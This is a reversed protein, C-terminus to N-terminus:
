DRVKNKLFNVISNPLVRKVMRSLNAQEYRLNNIIYGPGFKGEQMEIRLYRNMILNMYYLHDHQAFSNDAKATKRHHYNALSYGYDIFDVNYLSLLRIGFEWDGCIPLTDDFKGAAVYANRRILTAIPTLQNDICQKYLNIVKMDPMWQCRSIQTIADGKIEEIIKDARVVVGGHLENEELYKVTVSLFDKHWTDDDDHLAIYESDVRDISENFITDPANSAVERHFIQIKDRISESFSGVITDVEARDGGDNVIVHVYDDFSQSSVSEVARRLFLPRDKTRTVVAVKNM